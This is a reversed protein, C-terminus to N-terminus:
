MPQVNVLAFGLDADTVVLARDELLMADPGVLGPKRRQESLALPGSQEQLHRGLALPYGLGEFAEALEQDRAAHRHGQRARPGLQPEAARRGTPGAPQERGHAAGHKRHAWGLCIWRALTQPRHAGDAVLFLFPAGSAVIGLAGDALSPGHRDRSATPM